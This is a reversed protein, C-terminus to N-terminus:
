LSCTGAGLRVEYCECVEHHLSPAPLRQLCLGVVGLQFKLSVASKVCDCIAFGKCELKSKLEAIATGVLDFKQSLLEFLFAFTSIALLTDEPWAHSTSSRESCTEVEMPSDSAGNEEAAEASKYAATGLSCRASVPMSSIDCFGFLVSKCFSVLAYSVAVTLRVARQHEGGADLAEIMSCLSHIDTNFSPGLAICHPNCFSLPTVSDDPRGQETNTDSKDQHMAMWESLCTNKSQCTLQIAMCSSVHPIYAWEGKLVRQFDFCNWDISSLRIAVELGHWPRLAGTVFTVSVLVILLFAKDAFCISNM